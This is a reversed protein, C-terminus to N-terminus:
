YGTYHKVYIIFTADERDYSSILNGVIKIKFIQTANHIKLPSLAYPLNFYNLVSTKKNNRHRNIKKM